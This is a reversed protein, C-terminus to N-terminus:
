KLDWVSVKSVCWQYKRSHERIMFPEDKQEVLNFKESLIDQLWQWSDIEPWLTKDTYDELWSFPTALILRGGQNLSNHINELFQKPQPLRCVLNAAHILDFKGLSDMQMADGQQFTVNGPSIDSETPASINYTGSNRKVNLSHGKSLDSAADVFAHSYDVGLVKSAYKTLDFSSRGVACGLDLCKAWKKDSAYGATRQPFHLAEKPGFEWPMFEEDKAYHFFLYDSVLQETEYIDNGLNKEM